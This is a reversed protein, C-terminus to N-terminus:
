KLFRDIFCKISKQSLPQAKTEYTLILNDGAFIGNQAYANIKRVAKEAYEVSDMMGLHEWYIEKRLRVNLVTFDPHVEGFEELYLPCEYRYLIKERFLSDAIMVESKSRVREGKASYLEPQHSHFALGQYEETEWAKVFEEDTERVPMILKQREKHLSEYFEEMCKQPCHAFYKEIAHLEQDCIELIKADYDKQALQEAINKDKMKIYTGNFDKPDRRHFYQVRKGSRNIRLKGDPVKKLAKEKEKKVYLLKQKRKELLLKIQEM